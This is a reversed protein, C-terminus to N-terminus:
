GQMWVESGKSDKALMERLMLPSNTYSNVVGTIFAYLDGHWTEMQMALQRIEPPNVSEIAKLQDDVNLDRHATITNRIFQFTKEHKKSYPRIQAGLADMQSLHNKSDPLKEILDRVKKGLFGGIKEFLSHIIGALHKAHVHQIFEDREELLQILYIYRDLDLLIIYIAMDALQLLTKRGDLEAKAKEEKLTEFTSRLAEIKISYM